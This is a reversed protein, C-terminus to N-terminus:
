KGIPFVEKDWYINWLDVIVSSEDVNYVGLIDNIYKFEGTKLSIRLLTTNQKTPITVFLYEPTIYKSYLKTLFSNGINIGGILKKNDKNVEYLQQVCSKQGNLEDTAETQEFVYTLKDPLFNFYTNIQFSSYQVYDYDSPEIDGTSTNVKLARSVNAKGDGKSILENSVVIFSGDSQPIWGSLSDTTYAYKTLKQYKEDTLKCSLSDKGDEGINVINMWQTARYLLYVKKGDSIINKRSGYKGLYKSDLLMTCKNTKIDYVYLDGENKFFDSNKTDAAFFYLKYADTPAIASKIIYKGSISGVKEGLYYIAKDDVSAVENIKYSTADSVFSWGNNYYPLLAKEDESLTKDVPKFQKVQADSPKNHSTCSVLSLLIFFVLFVSLSKSFM